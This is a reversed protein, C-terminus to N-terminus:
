DFGNFKKWRKGMSRGSWDTEVAGKTGAKNSFQREASKRYKM